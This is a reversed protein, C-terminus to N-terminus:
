PEKAEDNIIICFTAFLGYVHLAYSKKFKPEAFHPSNCARAAKIKLAIKLDANIKLAIKLDANIKLAKKLDFLIWFFFSSSLCPAPSASPQSHTLQRRTMCQQRCRTTLTAM